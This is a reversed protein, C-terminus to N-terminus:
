SYNHSWTQPTQFSRFPLGFKTECTTTGDAKEPQRHVQFVQQVAACGDLDSALQYPMSLPVMHDERDAAQGPLPIGGAGAARPISRHKGPHHWTNQGMIGLAQDENSQEGHKIHLQNKTTWLPERCNNLIIKHVDTNKQFFNAINIEGSWM